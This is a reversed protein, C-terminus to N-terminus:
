EGEEHVTSERRFAESYANFGRLARVLDDKGVDMHERWWAALSSLNPHEMPGYCGFCARNFSPCLADCGMQTVPGLCPSAGAVMVCVNGRRKCEVCVSERSVNPNRGNLFASIV